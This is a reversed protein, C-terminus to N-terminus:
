AQSRMTAMCRPKKVTIAPKQHMTRLCSAREETYRKPNKLFTAMTTEKVVETRNEYSNHIQQQAV